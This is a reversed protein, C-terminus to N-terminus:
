KFSFYKHGLFSTFAPVSLGIVHAVEDNYFKFDVYPFFYDRFLISIVLTQIIAAINVSTFVMFQKASNKKGKQFVFTKNLSFATVMGVFYALVIAAAYSTFYNIIIRSLFNIAAAFGSVTLFKIFEMSCYDKLMNGM